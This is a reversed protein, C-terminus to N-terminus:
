EYPRQSKKATVTMSGGRNILIEIFSLVVVVPIFMIGSLVCISVKELVTKHRTIM